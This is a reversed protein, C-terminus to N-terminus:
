NTMGCYGIRAVFYVIGIFMGISGILLNKAGLPWFKFYQISKQGRPVRLWKSPTFMGSLAGWLMVAVAIYDLWNMM